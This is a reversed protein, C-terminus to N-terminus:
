LFFYALTQPIFNLILSAYTMDVSLFGTVFKNM